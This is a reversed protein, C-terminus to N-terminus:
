GFDTTSGTFEELEIVLVGLTQELTVSEDTTENPDTHEVFSAHTEIVHQGQLNLIEQLSPQLSLHELTTQSFTNVVSTSKDSLTM